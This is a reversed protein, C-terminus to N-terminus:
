MLIMEILLTGCAGVDGLGATRKQELLEGGRGRGEAGERAAANAGGVGGGSSRFGGKGDRPREARARARARSSEESRGTGATGPSSGHLSPMMTPTVIDKVGGVFVHSTSPDIYVNGLGLERSSISRALWDLALPADEPQSVHLPQNLHFRSHVYWM